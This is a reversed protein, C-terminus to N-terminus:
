RKFLTYYRILEIKLKHSLYIFITSFGARNSLLVSVLKINTYFHCNLYNLSTDVWNCWVWCVNIVTVCIVNSEIGLALDFKIYSFTKINSEYFQGTHVVWRNCQIQAECFLACQQLMLVPEHHTVDSNM